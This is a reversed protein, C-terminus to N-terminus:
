WVDRDASSDRNMILLQMANYQDYAELSLPRHFLQSLDDLQQVDSLTAERNIAFSFLEPYQMQLPIDQWRDAWVRITNGPGAKCVHLQRFTPLLKLIAKWWFSGVMREGPLSNRYYSEWIINVWPIDSKNLFKHLFKMLLSKNHTHLDLVGLGGHSKPKCVQEWSILASGRDQTGYKRWFCNMLYTITHKLVTKPITLTCMFSTPMSTFVSRILTLKDGSSLLTSSSLLRSEIRQLMLVYDELKPKINCLPLGLYTHPLTGIKCGLLTSLEQMKEPPTNISVLTSKSYNIKLGTFDAYYNLLNKIQQAQRSDANALLITDDAYQVIPYDPSSNHRM